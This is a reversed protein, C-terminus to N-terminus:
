AAGKPSAYLNLMMTSVSGLGQRMLSPFGVTIISYYTNMEKSICHLHFKSQTKNRLFMSLLIVSAIYQSLATSLGAGMIGLHMVEMFFYDGFINLIGGSTLGIMAFTAQGEYRLINNMVCSSAMAPAAILIFIGYIKAYPLITNTSGLIKMLPNIFILGLIMIVLGCTISLYFSTSAFIKAEDIRKAGLRRSINSGSGHGLMFGFAQIIAMLGFMIGVAGSASTGLKGVFYTDAMNYVNTILMSITTPIGLSIILKPIPTKTMKNFQKSSDM